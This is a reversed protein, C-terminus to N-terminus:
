PEEKVLCVALRYGSHLDATVEALLSNPFYGLRPGEHKRSRAIILEELPLPRAEVQGPADANKQATQIKTQALQVAEGRTKALVFIDANVPVDGPMRPDNDYYSGRFQVWWLQQRDETPLQDYFKVM